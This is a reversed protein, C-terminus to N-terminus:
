FPWNSDYYIIPAGLFFFLNFDEGAACYSWMPTRFTQNNGFLELSMVYGPLHTTSNNDTYQKAPSFRKDRMYPVEFAVIPNVACSQLTAGNQFAVGDEQVMTSRLGLASQQGNGYTRMILSANECAYLREVKATAQGGPADAFPTTDWIWRVSGRWGGFAPTLYNLLTMYGYNYQTGDALTRSLGPAIAINYGAYLPLSPMQIDIKIREALNNNVPFGVPMHKNYRKLVQRFSHISEGFYVKNTDDLRDVYPGMDNLSAVHSPKNDETMKEEEGAQPVVESNVETRAGALAVQSQIRYKAQAIEDGFPVALEFDDGASIFVNVEIDNNITTNPVTLENVVWMSIVGNGVGNPPFLPPATRFMSANSPLTSLGFHQRYPDKQGWGITIEFDTNESIDVVTTYATNYETTINSSWSPDYVIKVRGKHYKSCVFQFRYKMSGRWFKFPMSAFATAPLHREVGVVQHIGPDVVAMFLATEAPRNLAWSFSTLYSERQTIYKITLEDDGGLGVTRPDITLENKVDLTLKASENNTNSTAFSFISTPRYIASEIILPSSYGFLTAMAGLATAGIETARAYPGIIPTDMFRAAVNAVVGAIRSVPKKGYEDAQPSIAGPEANTPIAFKVDEAWAFVNVTVLDTAGNAHKLPQISHLTMEGLEQWDSTTIDLVNNPTFFPLVMEGGQSNTPDCYIHPRQSAAIVDADIFSRDVTMSDTVPLPNYSVILRGYHFANGNLTVKVHLRARMLKYNAIRNIVRVNHFYNTWPNFKEHLAVGVGWEYSQIRIPRSFFEDLTADSSLAADRIYDFNSAVDEKYGPHTDVFKVNQSQIDPTAESYEEAQPQVDESLQRIRKKERVEDLTPWHLMLDKYVAYGIYVLVSGMLGWMTYAIEEHCASEQAQPKLAAM